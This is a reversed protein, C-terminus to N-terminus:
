GTEFVEIAKKEVVRSGSRRKGERSGRGLYLGKWGRKGFNM